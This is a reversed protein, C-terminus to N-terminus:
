ILLNIKKKILISVDILFKRKLPFALKNNNHKGNANERYFENRGLLWKLSYIREGHTIAYVCRLRINSNEYIQSPVILQVIEISNLEIFLSILSLTFISSFYYFFNIKQFM